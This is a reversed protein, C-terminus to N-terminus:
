RVAVFQQTVMVVLRRLRHQKELLSCLDSPFFLVAGVRLRKKKDTNHVNLIVVHLGWTVGCLTAVGLNFFVAM